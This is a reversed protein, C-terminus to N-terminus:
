RGLEKLLRQAEPSTLLTSLTQGAQAYNGANALDVAQQLKGSDTQRLMALLHQGAPSQALRLADQMSFDESNKQM